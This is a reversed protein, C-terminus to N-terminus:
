NVYYEVIGRIPPVVTYDAYSGLFGWPQVPLPLITRHGDFIRCRRLSWDYIGPTTMPPMCLEPLWPYANTDRTVLM